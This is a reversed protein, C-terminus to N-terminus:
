NFQFNFIKINRIQEFLTQAVTSLNGESDQDHRNSLLVIVIGDDPYISLLSTYGLTSGSQWIRRAEGPKHQMQWNLGMAYYEIQGWTPQHTLAILMDDENLYRIGYKLLDRSSSYLGGALGSSAHPMIKGTVSHGAITRDSQAPLEFRTDKMGMPDTIWESVLQTYPKAYISELIMGLLQAGVNSYSLGIGPEAKLQVTHLDQLIRGHTIKSELAVVLPAMDDESLKAFPTRDIFDYPLGSSHNILQCLRVPHSHYALNPYEGPLYQRIDDQLNVQNDVAAKALLYGAFTKTISGIEFLTSDTPLIEQGQAYNYFFTNGRIYVAASLAGRTETFYTNIAADFLVDTKCDLPNDSKLKQGSQACMISVFGLLAASFITKKM